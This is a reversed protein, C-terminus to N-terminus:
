VGGIKIDKVFVSYSSKHVKVPKDLSFFLLKGNIRIELDRFLVDDIPEAPNQSVSIIHAQVQDLVPRLDEPIDM